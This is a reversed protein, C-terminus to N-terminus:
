RLKEIWSGPIASSLRFGLDARGFSFFFSGLSVKMFARWAPLLGALVLSRQDANLSVVYEDHEAEKEM